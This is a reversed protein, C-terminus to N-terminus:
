AADAGRDVVRHGALADFGQYIEHVIESLLITLPGDCERIPPPGFSPADHFSILSNIVFCFVFLSSQNKIQESDDTTEANTKFLRYIHDRDKTQIGGFVYPMPCYYIQGFYM